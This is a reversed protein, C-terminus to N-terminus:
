RPPPRPLKAVSAPARPTTGAQDFVVAGTAVDLVTVSVASGLDGGRLLPRLRARVAAGRAAAGPGHLVPELPSGAPPPLGGGPRPGAGPPTAGDVGPGVDILGAGALAAVAGAAVALLVLLV